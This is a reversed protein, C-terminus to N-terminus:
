IAKGNFVDGHGPIDVFFREPPPQPSTLSESLSYLQHSDPFQFIAEDPIAALLGPIDKAPRAASFLYGQVETCGEARVISFQEMTEVGEATTALRLSAGLTAIARVIAVSGQKRNLDQIFSRDIKIKDFPFSRLYSLSSYGTGFDDMSIRCGLGRLEHLAALACESNELLVTETIELELRSAALGSASLADRVARVPTKNRFQVSSLNVSVSVHEPWTAAERCAEMLIWEGMAVILGTEEALPIFEAPLIMGRSPHRWRVLAEFACTKQSVVNFFPQYFLEFECNAVASRLETELIRRAQIRLGMEPEFFRWTGPDDQKAQNQAINANRLLQEPDTGNSPALAIGISITPAICHGDVEYSQRITDAIREALALAERPDELDVQVIAFEDGGVRALTDSHRICKSLREGVSRLLSDGVPNGMTDNITKFGDLDLILVAIFMWPKREALAQALRERFSMRNPLSTLLDHRALFAIQAQATKRHTIDRTIGRYGRFVGETSFFPNGNTELWIVSGDQGAVSHVFGRFPRHCSLDELHAALLPDSAPDSCVIQPVTKGPFCFDFSQDREIETEGQRYSSVVRLDADMEWIIDCTTSIFDVLRQRAEEAELRFRGLEDAL